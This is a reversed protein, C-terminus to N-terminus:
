EVVLRKTTMGATTVVRVFYIGAPLGKLDMTTGVANVEKHQLLKGDAGYLEVAKVRFSSAVTVEERAPNPMLYTYQEVPSIIKTTDPDSPHQYPVLFHITDTWDSWFDTDCLARVRAWYWMDPYLGDVYLSNTTTTMTQCNSMGLAVPNLEVKWSLVQASNWALTVSGSDLVATHLWSPVDCPMTPVFFVVTDSWAGFIDTDCLTRVRAVYWQGTDLGMLQLYNIPTSFFMGSDAGVPKVEVQWQEVGSAEWTLVASGTTDVEEVALGETKVGMCAEYVFNTDFIAFFPWWVQFNPPYDFNFSEEEKIKHFKTTDYDPNAGPAVLASNYPWFYKLYYYPPQPKPNSDWRYFRTYHTPIHDFFNTLSTGYVEPDYGHLLNNHTTGGVVFTDHVLIPKEFYAEYVDFTTDQIIYKFFPFPASAEYRVTATDWRTEGMFYLSDDIIQYLRYYEPLRPITTDPTVWWWFQMLSAVGIVMMPNPTICPRGVFADGGLIESVAGCSDFDLNKNIDYCVSDWYYYNSVRDGFQLLTPTTQGSAVLGALMLGAIFVMRKM